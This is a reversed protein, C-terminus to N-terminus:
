RSIWHGVLGDRCLNSITDEGDRQVSRVAEVGEIRGHELLQQLNEVICIGVVLYSCDDEGAGAAAVAGPGIEAPSPTGEVATPLLVVGLVPVAAPDSCRSPPPIRVSRSKSHLFGTMAAMLPGATPTPMVM